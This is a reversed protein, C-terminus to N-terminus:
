DGRYLRILCDGLEKLAEGEDAEFLKNGALKIRAGLAARLEPDNAFQVAKEVYDNHDSAVSDTVGIYRYLGSVVRGRLFEGPWTVIPVGESIAIVATTGGGFHISDLVIDVTRLLAAFKSIEPQWDLFLIREREEASFDNNFRKALMANWSEDKQGKPFAVVAEPDRALIQAVIRDFDPHIKQLMMPCFYVRRGPPMRFDERGMQVPVINPRAYSLGGHELAVLRESYHQQANEPEFMAGSLMFDITPIGTTDPHGTMACQVPALRSHALCYTLVNMGIDPYVILDFELAGVEKALPEPPMQALAILRGGYEAIPIGVESEDLGITVLIVDMDSRRALGQIFGKTAATMAHGHRLNSSIFGVKIKGQKRASGLDAHPATFCVGRDKQFLKGIREFLPRNNLAHYSFYFLQLSYIGEFNLADKKEMLEIYEDSRARSAAIEDMSLMIPSVLTAERLLWYDRPDKAYREACYARAKDIECRCEYAAILYMAWLDVEERPVDAVEERLLKELMEVYQMSYAGRAAIARLTRYLLARVQAFDNQNPGRLLARGLFILADDLQGLGFATLGRLWLVESNNPLFLDARQLHAAADANNGSVICIKGLLLHSQAHNPARSVVQKYLKEADNLRGAQHCILAQNFKKDLQKNLM